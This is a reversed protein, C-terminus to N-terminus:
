SSNKKRNKERKKILCSDVPRCFFGVSDFIRKNYICIYIDHVYIYMYVSVYTCM